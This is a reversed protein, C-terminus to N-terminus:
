PTSNQLNAPTMGTMIYDDAGAVSNDRLTPYTDGDGMRYWHDPNPATALSLLDAPAGGNYIEAVHAATLEAAYVAVEDLLCGRMYDAGGGSRGLRNVEAPINGTFGSGSTNLVQQVGNLYVRIINLSSIDGLVATTSGDYVVCVHIWNFSPVTGNPTRVEASGIGVELRQQQRRFNVFARNGNGAEAGFGIITNDAGLNGPLLWCSFSWADSAGTGDGARFMPHGSDAVGECYELQNFAVSLTNTFGGAAIVNIQRPYRTAGGISSVTLELPYSGIAGPGGGLDELVTGQLITPNNSSAYVGDPTVWTVTTANALSAQYNIPQGVIVDIGAPPLGPDNGWQPSTNASQTLEANINNVTEAETAGWANNFEDVYDGFPQSAIEDLATGTNTITVTGDGNGIAHLVGLPRSGIPESVRVVRNGEDVYIEIPM